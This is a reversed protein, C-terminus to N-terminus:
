FRFRGNSKRCGRSRLGPSIAENWSRLLVLLKAYQLDLPRVDQTHGMAPGFWEQFCLGLEFVVHFGVIRGTHPYTERLRNMVGM